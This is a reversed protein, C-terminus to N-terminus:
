KTLVFDAKDTGGTPVDFTLDSKTNYKAPILNKEAGEPSKPDPKSLSITVKHKGPVAGGRDGIVTKLAYRGQADTKGYSGGVGGGDGAAPTFSVSAGEVPQGDLTVAGSVSVPGGGGCGAAGFLAAACLGFMLLRM